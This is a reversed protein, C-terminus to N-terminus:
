GFSLRARGGPSGGGYALPETGRILPLRPVHNERCQVRFGCLTLM